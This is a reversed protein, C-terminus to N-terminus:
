NNLGTGEIKKGNYELFSAIELKSTQIKKDGFYLGYAFIPRIM